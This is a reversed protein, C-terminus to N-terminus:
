PTDLTILYLTSPIRAGGRRSQSVHGFIIKKGDPSWTSETIQRGDPDFNEHGPKSFYTLRVKNKGDPEMLWLDEGEGPDGNSCNWMIYKGNPSFEPNEDHVFPTDTLRKILVGELDSIYIDGWLGRGKNEKLDTYSYIFGKDSPIFGAGEILTFGDPPDIHRIDSIVPENNKFSIKAIKARWAGLEEGVRYKFSGWGWYSGPRGDNEKGEPYKEMSFEENWFLMKGDHSFSPRIVGWNDPYDTIQWFQEGDSTMIWVNHNRGLGPRATTGNGKRPYKSSEATFVIYEGGPHWFPQGRWRTNSLATKDCTLCKIDTGDPKMTFIEYRIGQLANRETVQGTFAVLTGDPSWKPFSGEGIKELSKVRPMKVQTKDPSSSTASLTGTCNFFSLVAILIFIFIM